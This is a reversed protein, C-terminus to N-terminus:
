LESIIDYVIDRCINYIEKIREQEKELFFQKVRECSYQIAENLTQEDVEPQFPILQRDPNYSSNLYIVDQNIIPARYRTIIDVISICYEEFDM